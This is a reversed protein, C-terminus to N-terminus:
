KRLELFFNPITTFTKIYKYGRVYNKNDEKVNKERILCPQNM